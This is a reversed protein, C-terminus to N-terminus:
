KIKKYNREKETKFLTWIDRIIRDKIEKEKTKLVFKNQGKQESLEWNGTGYVTQKPTNIQFHSVVKDKFGGVSKRIPEPIYNILCDYWTSKIPRINKIKQQEFKEMNDISVIIYNLCFARRDRKMKVVRYKLERNKNYNQFSKLFQNVRIKNLYKREINKKYDLNEM